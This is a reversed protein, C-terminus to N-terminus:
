FREFINEQQKQQRRNKFDDVKDKTLYYGCVMLVIPVSIFVFYIWPRVKRKKSNYFISM